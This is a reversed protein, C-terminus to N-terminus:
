TTEHPPISNKLDPSHPVKFMGKHETIEKLLSSQEQYSLTGTEFYKLLTKFSEDSLLSLNGLLERMLTGDM